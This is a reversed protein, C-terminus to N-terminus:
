RLEHQAAYGAADWLHNFEDVPENLEIGNIVRYRYNEQEKRFDHDKVIHIKYRKIIDNRYVICGAFKKAAFCMFGQKKLDVIMGPDASDCWCIDTKTIIKSLIEGLTIANDVPTYFKNELYLNRGNIGCKVVATPDKTYGFDMGYFIREVSEPFSEIWVVNPFIVGSPACREGLGYVKWMYDDATGNAINESTPEYSLIKNKELNSIYPNDFFTSKLFGVDPRRLANDYFWHMSVSPNYDAWWFKKCRQEAQDFVEHSVELVENIWFYDCGVGKFKSPEDAGLFNIRNGFLWFTRVEQKGECPSILNRLPFLKNFDDYLTTKFSNYTSKIINITCNTEKRVCLWIIFDISSWTKGSRSSGELGLGSKGDKFNKVLAHFNPNIKRPM